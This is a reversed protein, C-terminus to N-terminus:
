QSVNLFLVFQDFCIVANFPLNSILQTLVYLVSVSCVSPCLMSNQLEVLWLIFITKVTHPRSRINLPLSGCCCLSSGGKINRNWHRGCLLWCGWPVSRGSHFTKVFSSSKMNYCYMAHLLMFIHTNLFFFRLELHMQLTKTWICLVFLRWSLSWRDLVVMFRLQYVTYTQTEASSWM